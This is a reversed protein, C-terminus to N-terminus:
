TPVIKAGIRNVFHSFFEYTTPSKGFAHSPFIGMIIMHTYVDSHNGQSSTLLRQFDGISSCDFQVAGSPEIKCGAGLWM